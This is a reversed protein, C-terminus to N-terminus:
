APEEITIKIPGGASPIFETRVNTERVEELPRFRRSNFAPEGQYKFGPIPDNIVGVLILGVCLEPRGDDVNFGDVIGRIVYSVNELPLQKFLKAIEPAFFGDVCVVHQGVHFSM